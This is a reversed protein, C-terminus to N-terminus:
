GFSNLGNHFLLDGLRCVGRGELRVNFSYHLFRSATDDAQNVLTSDASIDTAQYTAGRVMPMEGGVKVMAPGNEGSASEIASTGPFPEPFGSHHSARVDPFAVHTDDSGTHVVKRQNATLTSAM